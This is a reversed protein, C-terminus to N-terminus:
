DVQSRLTAISKEHMTIQEKTSGLDRYVNNLEDKTVMHEMIKNM